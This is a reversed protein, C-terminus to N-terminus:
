HLVCIIKKIFKSCPFEETMDWWECRIPIGYCPFSAPNAKGTFRSDWALLNSTTKLSTLM